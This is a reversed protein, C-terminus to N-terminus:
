MNLIECELVGEPSRRVSKPGVRFIESVSERTSRQRRVKSYIRLKLRVRLRTVRRNPFYALCQGLGRESLHDSSPGPHGNHGRHM